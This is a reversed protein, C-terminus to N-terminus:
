FAVQETFKNNQGIAENKRTKEHREHVWFGNKPEFSLEPKSREFKVNLPAFFM